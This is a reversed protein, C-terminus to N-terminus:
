QAYVKQREKQAMHNMVLCLGFVMWFLRNVTFSAFMGTFLFSLLSLKVGAALLRSLQNHHYEFILEASRIDRFCSYFFLFFLIFGAAGHEALLEFYVNHSGKDYKLVSTVNPTARYCEAYSPKFNGAGVGLFPHHKFMTFGVKIADLRAGREKELTITQLREVYSSRFVSTTGAFLIVMVIVLSILTKRNWLPYGKRAMLFLMCIFAIAAGRSYSVVVGASILAFAAYFVIRGWRRIGILVFSLPLLQVMFLGFANPETVGGTPRNGVLSLSGSLQEYIALMASAAGSFLYVYLLQKVQNTNKLVIFTLFM